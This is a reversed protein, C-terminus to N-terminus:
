SLKDGRVTTRDLGPRDRSEQCYCARLQIQPGDYSHLYANLMEEADSHDNRDM